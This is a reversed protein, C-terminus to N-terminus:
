KKFAKEAKVGKGENQLKESWAARNDNNNADLKGRVNYLFTDKDMPKSNGAARGHGPLTRNAPPNPQTMVSPLPSPAALAVPMLNGVSRHIAYRADGLKVVVIAQGHIDTASFAGRPDTRGKQPPTLGSSDYAAIEADAVYANRVTDRVQVRVSGNASDEHVEMDLTTLLVLGSAMQSDGRCIVLYAGEDKLPLDISRKKWAYDLGDGLPVAMEAQPTIGSLNVSSVSSLDKQREQLKMLDVRYILLTAEKVNRHELEIKVPTGPKARTAHPLKVGKEQLVAISERADDFDDKVKEYWRVAEAAKGQAHHIQATIYRANPADDSSGAAVPAAAALAEPFQYQWFRGLATMYHFNNLFTSKTFTTAANGATQVVSAYDKLDFFVNALSFAADDALEDRAHLTLFQRLLDRSRELLQNKTWKPAGPRLPVAAPDAALEQFRQALSFFALLGDAGDPHEMWLSLLHNASGPFDGATEIAASVGADSVFGSEMTARYVLWAREFEGMQRYAAAVKLIKDFPIVIDPHRESLAEFLEVVQRADVKERATHIWLLMRAIDREHNKMAEADGRLTELHTRAEEYANENFLLEALELREFGNMVYVDTSPKGTPLITLSGEPGANFRQPQCADRVLIHPIRYTGPHLAILEYHVTATDLDTFAGPIFWLRLMGPLQELRAHDATLSGAVLVCGAPLPEDIIVYGNQPQQPAKLDLRVRLRQGQAAVRVPSSSEAKLPVDHHRLGEHLWQRKSVTPLTPAAAAATKLDIPQDHIFTTLLIPRAAPNTYTVSVHSKGDAGPKPMPISSPLAWHDPDIGEATLKLGEADPLQHMGTSIFHEALAATLLGRLASDLGLAAGLRPLLMDAARQALASGPATKAAAYLVMALTDDDSGLRSTVKSGSWAPKAELIKLLERAEDVRGMRQFAAALWALAPDNLKARDRYMRNAVSFDAADVCALAHLIVAAKDPEDPPIIALAEKLYATASKLAAAEVEHGLARAEVLAWLGLSTVVSDRQWRVDQWTWGGDQQTIQLESITQQIMATMGKKPIDATITEFASVLTLLRSAATQPTHQTNFGGQTMMGQLLRAPSEAVRLAARTATSAPLVQDGSATLIAGTHTLSVHGPALIGIARIDTNQAGGAVEARAEFTSNGGRAPTTLPDFRGTMQGPSPLEKERTQIEAPKLYRGFIASLSLKVLAQPLGAATRFATAAPEFVDGERLVGPVMLAVSIDERGTIERTAQGVQTAVTCGRSTLRWVGADEPVLVKVTVKGEANTVLPCYWWADSSFPSRGPGSDATNVRLGSIIQGGGMAGAHRRAIERNAMGQMSAPANFALMFSGGSADLGDGSPNLIPAGYNVTFGAVDGLVLSQGVQLEGAGSVSMSTIGGSGLGNAFRLRDDNSFGGRGLDRQQIEMQANAREYWVSRERQQMDRERDLHSPTTDATAILNGNEDKTLLKSAASHRFGANSATRLSTARRLSGHFFEDLDETRDPHQDFFAASALALSLEAAVPRGGADTTTLVVDVTEGPKAPKDPTQIEIKLPRKVRFGRRASHLKDGDLCAVSLDFHPWHAAAVAVALENHGSALKIIRHEIMEEGALTVLALPAAMRSHADVKLAAGENVTHEDSFLHLRTVDDPGSVAVTAPIEVVNGKADTTQAQLLHPVAEQLVITSSGLGTAADTEIVFEAVRVPASAQPTYILGPLGALVPNAVQQNLRSLTVKVSAAAPKGRHDMTKVRIVSPEGMLAPVPLRDWVLRLASQLVPVGHQVTRQRAPLQASFTVYAGAQFTSTEQTFAFTGEADTKGELMRGDPMQLRVPEDVLPAGWSYKVRLTGDIRDGRFVAEPKTEIVATIEEVEFESVEFSASYSEDEAGAGNENVARARITYSGAPTTAPLPVSHTFTGFESLKSRMRRLVRGRDDALSIDYERGVPVSYAGDQVDRIIGRFHVSEGARYTGKDTHIFGQRALAVTTRDSSGGTIEQTMGRLDLRQIAVGAATRVHVCLDAAERIMEGRLRFVGDQATRGQGIVEKGNSILVEADAVAAGKVRDQVFVLAEKWASQVILDIDSRIVITGAQWDEGEVRILCVGPKADDFPVDIAQEMPKLRLYDKIPVEWTKDPQILDIDLSGIGGAGDLRHRSRFFDELNLTYRSVKLKEINRVNVRVQATENTRFVRPTRLALSRQPMMTAREGALQKWGGWTLRQFTALADEHRDLHEAQVVGTRYLALSAEESQPHKIILRAWEAIANEFLPRAEAAGPKEKVLKMANAYPWQGNLFLLQACRPDLPHATIFADFRRTAEARDDKAVAELCLQFEADMIRAQAQQWLSGDPHKAIYARWQEMAQPYQRTAFRLSGIQFFAQQKWGELREAPTRKDRADPAPAPWDARDYLAKGAEIAEETKNQAALVQALTMAAEASRPHAPYTKLFARLAAAHRVPNGPAHVAQQQSNNLFSQGQMQVTGQQGQALQPPDSSEPALPAHSRCLLWEIDGVDPKTGAAPPQTKWLKLLDEAHTRAAAGNGMDLLGEILLARVEWRRAGATKAKAKTAANPNMREASGVPGLWDPDFEQLYAECTGVLPGQVTSGAERLFLLIQVLVKERLVASTGLAVAKQYLALARTRAEHSVSPAPPVPKAIEQALEVLAEALRDKRVTAFLREAEAGYIAEAEAHKKLEALCQAKLFRAKRHWAHELPIADCDTVAAAHQKAETRAVARLYHAYGPDAAGSIVADTLATAAETYRQRQLLLEADEVPGAHLALAFPLILVALFSCTRNNM